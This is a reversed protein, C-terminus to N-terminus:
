KKGWINCVRKAYLNVVALRVMVEWGRGSGCARRVCYGLRWRESSMQPSISDLGPGWVKGDMLCDRVGECSLVVM